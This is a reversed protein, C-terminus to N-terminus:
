IGTFRRFFRDSFLDLTRLDNASYTTGVVGSIRNSSNFEHDFNILADVNYGAYRVSSYGVAGEKYDSLLRGYYNFRESQKFNYSGRLEFSLLKNLKYTFGLKSMVNAETNDNKYDNIWATPTNLMATEGSEITPVITLIPNKSIMSRIASYNLSGGMGTTQTMQSFVQAASINFTLKLKSSL